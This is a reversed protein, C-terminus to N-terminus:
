ERTLKEVIKIFQEKTLYGNKACEAIKLDVEFCIPILLPFLKKTRLAETVGEVWNGSEILSLYNNRMIFPENPLLDLAKEFYEFSEKYQKQDALANAAAGYGQGDDPCLEIYEKWALIANPLDGKQEFEFAQKWKNLGNEFAEDYYVWLPRRYIHQDNIKLSQVLDNYFLTNSENLEGNTIRDILTKLESDNALYNELEKISKLEPSSLGRILEFYNIKKCGKIEKGIQEFSTSVVWKRRVSRAKFINTLESDREASNLQHAAKRDTLYFDYFGGKQDLKFNTRKLQILLTTEGDDVFLDVDGNISNSERESIVKVKWRKEEFRKGLSMEMEGTEHKENKRKQKLAKNVFSYFWMNNSFFTLPAFIQDEILLFPSEWVDYNLNFRNFQSKGKKLTKISFEEIIGNTIYIELESFVKKNLEFFQNRYHLIFPEKAIDLTLSQMTLKVFAEGWSSTKPKFELLSSEYRDKRNFSYGQLLGLPLDAQVDEVGLWLRSANLDKLCSLTAYRYFTIFENKVDDGKFRGKPISLLGSEQLDMSINSGIKFYYNENLFYRVGDVLFKYQEVPSVKIYVADSGKEIQINDNFCYEHIVSESEYVWQAVEDMIPYTIKGSGKLTQSAYRIILKFLNQYSIPKFKEPFESILLEIFFSYAKGLRQLVTRDQHEFRTEELWIITNALIEDLSLPQLKELENQIKTWREREKEALFKWVEQHVGFEEPFDIDLLEKLRSEDKLFVQSVRIAKIFVKPYQEALKQNLEKNSFEESSLYDFLIDLAYDSQFLKDFVSEETAFEKWFYEGSEGKFWNSKGTKGGAKQSYGIFESIDLQLLSAFCNEWDKKAFHERAEKKISLTDM